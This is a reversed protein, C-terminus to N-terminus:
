KPAKMGNAEPTFDKDSLGVNFKIDKYVYRCILRDQWDYGEICIPVLYETDIYTLSKHAPYDNKAPLYRVLVVTKRGAVSAYGGFSEKLDGNNKAKTYVDILSKLSREFGFMTVPRLTNQMAERGDPQRLVTGVLGGLMGKPQVLMQGNYKGEVYLVGEGIPANKTWKMAVSYPHARFKVNIWQENGTVGNIREQKIFTVTYDQYRSDLNEYCYKLLALHDKQALQSVKDTVEPANKGFVKGNLAVIFQSERFAETRTCQICFLAALLIGVLLRVRKNTPRFVDRATM